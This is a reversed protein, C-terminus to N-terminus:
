VNYDTSTINATSEYWDGHFMRGRPADVREFLHSGFYDRLAQIINAPLRATRIADYYAITSSIAPMAIGNTVAKAVVSRWDSNATALGNKFYPCLLLNELDPNEEFAASIQNLMASRIICGGLWIRAIVAERLNWRYEKSAASILSFGQAFVCLKAATMARMLAQIEQHLVTAPPRVPNAGPLVEFAAMREEKQASILRAFVSEAITPAPVGLDFAAEGTWKGTGKQGATDLIVDVLYRGTAKDKKKLIEATIGTLYSNLEETQDWRNFVTSIEEPELHLFDRMYAYAEAIMQMEAYEIGNHIMKVFHGAGDSGVRACCPAGAKAAIASLPEKLADWATQSCGAMLSSGHLAGEEGGSVGLGVYHIGMNELEESRRRTDKFFSNGADILIDGPVLHPKLQSIFDDVASGARITMLIKRPTKLFGLFEPISSTTHIDKDRGAHDMFDDLKGSTRNYLAVSYGKSEFNLALNAGMVALGAIGIDAQGKM